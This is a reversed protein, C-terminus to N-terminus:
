ENDEQANNEVQERYYNYTIETAPDIPRDDEKLYDLTQKLIMYIARDLDIFAMRRIADLNPATDRGPEIYDATFVIKELLTMAPKGTTHWTIAGLIDPDDVQYKERSVWAGVRGHLLYPSNKEAETVPLDHKRCIELLKEDKMGKACDHLIGAYSAKELSEGYRMALCISTYQVGISHRFRKKKLEGKLDEEIETVSNM